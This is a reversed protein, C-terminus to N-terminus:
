NCGLAFLNMRSFLIAGSVFEVDPCYIDIPSILSGSQVDLIVKTQAIFKGKFLMLNNVTLISTCPGSTHEIAGHDLFGNVTRYNNNYDLTGLADYIKFGKNIAPSNILLNFDPNPLTSSVFQPNQTLTNAPTFQPPSGPVYLDISVVNYRYALNNDVTLHTFNYGFISV